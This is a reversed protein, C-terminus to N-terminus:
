TSKSSVARDPHTRLCNSQVLFIALAMYHQMLANRTENCESANLACEASSKVVYHTPDGQTLSWMFVSLSSLMWTMRSLYYADNNAMKPWLSVAARVDLQHLLIYSIGAVYTVKKDYIAELKSNAKGYLYMIDFIQYYLVYLLQM